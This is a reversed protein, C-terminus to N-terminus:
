ERRRESQNLLAIDDTRMNASIYLDEHDANNPKFYKEFFIKVFCTRIRPNQTTLHKVKVRSGFQAYPRDSKLVSILKPQGLNSLDFSQVVGARHLPLALRKDLASEQSVSSISIVLKQNQESLDFSYGFQEFESAGSLSVAPKKSPYNFLHVSGVAQVDKDDFQCSPRCIIPVTSTQAILDPQPKNSYQNCIRTEPAGVALYGLKAKVSHGFWAYPM